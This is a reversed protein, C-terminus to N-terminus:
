RVSPIAMDSEPESSVEPAVDRRSMAPRRLLFLALVTFGLSAAALTAFLWFLDLAGAIGAQASFLGMALLALLMIDAVVLLIAALAAGQPRRQWLRVAALFFLPIVVALDQVHVASTPTKALLVPEPVTGQLTAPIIQGLWAMLFFLGVMACFAAVARAPVAAIREEVLGAREHPLVLNVLAFLSASLLAVYALFLRNFYATYSFMAYTYLVYGLTGILMMRAAMHGRRAGILAGILLPEAVVLTILDQGRAQPIMWATDRYFGPVLLGVLTVIPLLLVTTITLITASKSPHTAAM